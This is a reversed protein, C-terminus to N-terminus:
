CFCSCFPTVIGLLAAFVNGVSERKGALIRRTREPTFFSRIMGVGFVVVALLMLVKPTDYLFFEVSDGLKSDHEIGIIEYTLFWSVNQLQSYIAGWLILSGVVLLVKRVLDPERTVVPPTKADKSACSCSPGEFSTM